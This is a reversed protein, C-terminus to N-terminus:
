LWCCPLCALRAESYFCKHGRKVTQRPDCYVNGIHCRYCGLRRHLLWSVCPPGQRPWAGSQSRVSHGHLGIYGYRSGEGDDHGRMSFMGSYDVSPSLYQSARKSKRRTGRRSGRRGKLVRSQFLWRQLIFSCIFQRTRNRGWSTM